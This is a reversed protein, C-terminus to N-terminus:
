REQFWGREIGASVVHQRAREYETSTLKRATADLEAARYVPFFQGMLSVPVEPGLVDVVFKMVKKTGSLGQPLVLHRVIVGSVGIGNSDIVLPGVQNLMRRAARSAVDFYNPADSCTLAIEDDAYKIDTLYIDVTGALMDITGSSEYGSTNWVIPLRLGRKRALAVAEIIHPAYQTGTVFNINHAGRGALVVMRDAMQEVSVISGHGLQSIPFNQCFLCSLGCHALFFTASGRTGSIPPEEGRHVTASALKIEDGAGCIGVDGRLRRVACARPCLHCPDILDAFENM